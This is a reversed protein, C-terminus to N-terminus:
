NISNMMRCFEEMDLMKDGDLDAEMIMEEAEDESLELGLEKFCNILERFDILGDKNRDFYRFLQPFDHSINSEELKMTWLAEYLKTDLNDDLEVAIDKIEADKVSPDLLKMTEGVEKISIVGDRDYDLLAFVDKIDERMKETIHLNPISNVDNNNNSSQNNEVM